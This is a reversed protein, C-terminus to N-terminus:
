KDAGLMMFDEDEEEEQDEDKRIELKSRKAKTTETSKSVKRERWKRKILHMLTEYKPEPLQPKLQIVCGEKKFESVMIIPNQKGDLYIWERPKLQQPKSKLNEPLQSRIKRLSNEGLTLGILPRLREVVKTSIDNLRQGIAIYHINADSRSQTIRARM